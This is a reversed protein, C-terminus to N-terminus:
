SSRDPSWCRALVFSNIFCVGPVTGDWTIWVMVTRSLLKGSIKWFRPFYSNVEVITDTQCEADITERNSKNSDPQSSWKYRTGSETM